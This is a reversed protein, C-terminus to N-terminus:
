KVPHGSDALYKRVGAEDVKAPDWKVTITRESGTVELVGPKTKIPSAMPEFEEITALATVFEFDKSTGAAATGGSTNGAAAQVV